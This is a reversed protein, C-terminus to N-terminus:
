RSGRLEDSSSQRPVNILGRRPYRIMLADKTDTCAHFKNWRWGAYKLKKAPPSQWDLHYAVSSMESRGPSRAPLHGSLFRPHFASSILARNSFFLTCPTQIYSDAPYAADPLCTPTYSSRGTLVAWSVASDHTTKNAHASKHHYRAYGALIFISLLFCSAVLM